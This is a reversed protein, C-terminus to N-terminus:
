GLVGSIDIRRVFSPDLHNWPHRRRGPPVPLDAEWDRECVIKIQLLGIDFKVTQLTARKGVGNWSHTVAPHERDLANARERYAGFLFLVASAILSKEQRSFGTASITAVSLM